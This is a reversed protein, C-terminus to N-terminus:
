IRYILDHNCIRIYLISDGISVNQKLSSTCAIGHQGLETTFHYAYYRGTANSWSKIINDCTCKIGKFKRYILAKSFFLIVCICMIPILFLAILAMVGKILFQQIENFIPLFLYYSAFLDIICILANKVIVICCDKKLESEISSIDIESLERLTTKDIRESYQKDEQTNM